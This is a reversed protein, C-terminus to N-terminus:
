GTGADGLDHREVLDKLQRAAASMQECSRSGGDDLYEEVAVAIAAANPLGFIGLTGAMRHAADSAAAATVSGTAFHSLVLDAAALHDVRARDWLRALGARYRPDVEVSDDM